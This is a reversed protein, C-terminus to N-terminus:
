TKSFESRELISLMESSIWRKSANRAELVRSARATTELEYDTLKCRARRSKTACSM